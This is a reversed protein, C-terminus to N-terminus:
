ANVGLLGPDALPNRTVGQMVAGALGLALGVALGLLTRPLRLTMIVLDDTADKDYGVLAQWVHPLPIPRSGFALSAVCVVALLVLLAVLGVALRNRRTRGGAPGDSSPAPRALDPALTM